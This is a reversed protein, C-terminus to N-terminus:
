PVRSAKLMSQQSQQDQILMATRIRGPLGSKIGAGTRTYKQKHGLVLESNRTTTNSIRQYRALSALPLLNTTRTDM